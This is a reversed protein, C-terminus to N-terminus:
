PISDLAQEIVQKFVDSENIEINYFYKCLRKIMPIPFPRVSVVRNIM